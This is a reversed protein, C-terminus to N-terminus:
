LISSLSFTAEFGEVSGTNSVPRATYDELWEHTTQKAETVAFMTSLPNNSPSVDAILDLLDERRTDDGYTRLGYAM